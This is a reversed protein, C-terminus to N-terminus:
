GMERGRPLPLLFPLRFACHCEPGPNVSADRWPANAEMDGKSRRRIGVTALCEELPAVPPLTEKKKKTGARGGKLTLPLLSVRERM